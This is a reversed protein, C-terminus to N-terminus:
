SGGNRALYQVLQAESMPKASVDTIYQRTGFFQPRKRQIELNFQISDMRAPWTAAMGMSQLANGVNGFRTLQSIGMFNYNPYPSINKNLNLNTSSILGTESIQTLYLRSRRVDDFTIPADITDDPMYRSRRRQYGVMGRVRNQLAPTLNAFPIGSTRAANLMGANMAAFIELTEVSIPNLSDFGPRVVRALERAVSMQTAGMEKRAALHQDFTLAGPKLALTLFRGLAVRNTQRDLYGAPDGTYALLWDGKKRLTGGWMALVQDAPVSLTPGGPGGYLVSTLMGDSVYAVVNLDLRAAVEALPQVRTLAMPENRWPDAFRALLSYDVAELMGQRFKTMYSEWEFVRDSLPVKIGAGKSSPFSEGGPNVYVRNTPLPEWNEVLTTGGSTIEVEAMRAYPVQRLLIKFGDPADEGFSVSKDFLEGAYGGNDNKMMLKLYPDLAKSWATQEKKLQAFIALCKQQREADLSALSIMRSEGDPVRLSEGGLVRLIAVSARKAPSHNAAIQIEQYPFKVVGANQIATVALNSTRQAIALDLPDDLKLAKARSEIASDISRIEREAQQEAQDDTLIRTGVLLTGNRVASAAGIGDTLHKIVEKAPKNKVGVVVVAPQLESECRIRIGVQNGILDLAVPLRVPDTKLTIPADLRLRVEEPTMTQGVIGFALSTLIGVM